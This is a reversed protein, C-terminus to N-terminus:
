RASRADLSVGGAREALKQGALAPRPAPSPPAPRTAAKPRAAPGGQLGVDGPGDALIGSVPYFGGSMAKDIIVMDPSIGEHEYASFKGTRGLGSQIANHVLLARHQRSHRILLFPSPSCTMQM